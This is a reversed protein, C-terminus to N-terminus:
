CNLGLIKVAPIGTYIVPPQGKPLLKALNTFIVERFTPWKLGYEEYCGRYHQFKM